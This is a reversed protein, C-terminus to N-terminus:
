KDKRTLEKKMLNLTTNYAYKMADKDSLELKEDKNFSAYIEKYLDTEIVLNKLTEKADKLKQTYSNVRTLADLADNFAGM